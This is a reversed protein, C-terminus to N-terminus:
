QSRNEPRFDKIAAKLNLYYLRASIPLTLAVDDWGHALRGNPIYAPAGAYPDLNSIFRNVRAEVGPSRRMLWRLAKGLFPRRSVFIRWVRVVSLLRRRAFARLGGGTIRDGFGHICSLLKQVVKM